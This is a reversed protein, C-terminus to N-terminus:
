FAPKTLSHLIETETMTKKMNGENDLFVVIYFYGPRFKEAIKKLDTGDCAIVGRVRKGDRRKEKYYILENIFDVNYKESATFIGSVLFVSLFVISYNFKNIVSLYIGFVALLGTLLISVTKMIREAGKYGFIGATIRKVIVGGDLPAVPLMNLAFLAINQLYFEEKFPFDFFISVFAMLVNSFPGALYLIVEDSVSYIIRNKLKLNVGFPYFVIRSAKLGICYAAFLHSLEHVTIVAYATLLLGLHRTVYCVAFLAATLIHIYIHKTIKIM